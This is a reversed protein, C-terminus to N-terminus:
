PRLNAWVAWPPVYQCHHCGSGAVYPSREGGAGELALGLERHVLEVDAVPDRVVGVAQTPHDPGVLSGNRDVEASLLDADGAWKAPHLLESRRKQGTGVRTLAHPPETGRRQFHLIDPNIVRGDRVYYLINERPVM